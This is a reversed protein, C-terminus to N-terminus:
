DTEWWWWQWRVEALLEGTIWSRAKLRGPKEIDTHGRPVPNPELGRPEQIQSWSQYVVDCGPDPLGRCLRWGGYYSWEGFLKLPAAALANELTTWCRRADGAQCSRAFRCLTEEGRLDRLM